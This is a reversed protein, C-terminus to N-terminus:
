LFLEHYLPSYPVYEHMGATGAKIRPRLILRRDADIISDRLFLRGDVRMEARDKNWRLPSNSVPGLINVAAPDGQAPLQPHDIIPRVYIWWLYRAYGKDLWTWRWDRAAPRLFNFARDLCHDDPAGHFERITKGWTDLLALAAPANSYFQVAGSCILQDPAFWDIAHRFGYFRSQTPRADDTSSMPYVPNFADTHEDALWNYVAFDVGNALLARIRKPEARFVCDCDIYLVPTHFEGLV